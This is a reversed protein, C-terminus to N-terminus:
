ADGKRLDPVVVGGQVVHNSLVHLLDLFRAGGVRNFSHVSPGDM